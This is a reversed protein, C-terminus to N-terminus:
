LSTLNDVNEATWHCKFKDKLHLLGDPTRLETYFSKISIFPNHGVTHNYNM